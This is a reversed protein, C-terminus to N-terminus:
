GTDSTERWKASFDELIAVYVVDSIRHPQRLQNILSQLPAIAVSAKM